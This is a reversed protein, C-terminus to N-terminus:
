FGILNLFDPPIRVPVYQDSGIRRVAAVPADGHDHFILSLLHRKLRSVPYHSFNPLVRVLREASRAPTQFYELFSPWHLISLLRIPSPFSPEFDPAPRDQFGLVATLAVSGPHKIDAARSEEQSEVNGMREPYTIFHNTLDSQRFLRVLRKGRPSQAPNHAHIWRAHGDFEM